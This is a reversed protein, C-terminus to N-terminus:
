LYVISVQNMLHERYNHMLEEYRPRRLIDVIDRYSEELTKYHEPTKEVLRIIEFGDAVEEPQSMQGQEMGYIFQKQPAIDSHHLTFIFREGGFNDKEHAIYHQLIKKQRTKTIKTSFPVVIREVTYTAEVLAKHENYYKEVDRRPVMLNSRVKADIMGNVMMMNSFQQRGEKMTYGSSAFLNELDEDTMDFEQKKQEIAADVSEEDHPFQHQKADLLVSKEFILADMTRYEGGLGPRDLDSQTIIVVDAHGYVVAKIEDLLILQSGYLSLGNFIVLLMPVYIQKMKM